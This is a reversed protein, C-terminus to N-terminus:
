TLEGGQYGSEASENLASDNAHEGGSEYHDGEDELHYAQSDDDDDEDDEIKELNEKESILFSLVIWFNLNYECLIM